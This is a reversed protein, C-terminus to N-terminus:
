AKTFEPARKQVKRITEAIRDMEPRVTLLVPQTFWVAETCLQDNVPCQNREEWQSMTEKGYVKQYCPNKALSRVHPSANLPTYGGSAPIGEQSLAQLFKARPLNAFHEKQYRFMYLHYANRTCGDHWRAPKIGSIEGLLKTLYAANQERIRSQEELRTMQALLLGGQFETLRLNAGRGSGTARRGGGQNQFNFCKDAFEEDNTVIAGGEGATLNKSAQFSFCGALSTNGVGRGRWQAVWAQCADEIVHIGRAKSLSGIADLDAPSGGIHVPLIVKTSRTIAAPIKKADIQFTEPDTDVFVPLAYGATIANFTAVFTYVPLIVEDGPGVGLAGFATLLATTGASTAVCHKAGTMQAYAREFDEVKHGRTRGWNGSHLVELLAQDERQDFTPWSPIGRKPVQNASPTVPSSTAALTKGIGLGLGAGAMATTNIFDRRTRTTKM